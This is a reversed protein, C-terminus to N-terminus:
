CWSKLVGGIERALGAAIMAEGVDKGDVAVRRLLLGYNDLNQPVKTMELEGSNLLNQLKRAAKRGLQAERPCATSYPQPAEINAIRVTKGALYFSDGSSVCNTLGGQECLGFVLGRSTAAAPALKQPEDRKAVGSGWLSLAAAVAVAAMPLWLGRGSRKARVHDHQPLGPLTGPKPWHVNRVHADAEPVYDTM